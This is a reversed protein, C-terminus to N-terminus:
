GPATLSLPRLHNSLQIFIDELEPVGREASGASIRLMGNDGRRIGEDEATISEIPVSACVATNHGIVGVPIGQVSSFGGLACEESLKGAVPRGIVVGFIHTCNSTVAVFDDVTVGASAKGAPIHALHGHHIVICKLYLIDFATIIADALSGKLRRILVHFRKCKGPIIQIEPSFFVIVSSTVAISVLM